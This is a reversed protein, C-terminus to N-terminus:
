LCRNASRCRCVYLSPGCLLTHRVGSTASAADSILPPYRPIPIFLSSGRARPLPLLLHPPGVSAHESEVNCRRLFFFPSRHETKKHQDPFLVGKKCLVYGVQSARKSEARVCALLGCCLLDSGVVPMNSVCVRGVQMPSHSYSAIDCRCYRM